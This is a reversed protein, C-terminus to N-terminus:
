TMRIPSEETPLVDMKLRNESWTNLLLKIEVTPISKLTLFTFRSLRFTFSCTLFLSVSYILLGSGNFRQGCVKGQRRLISRNWVMRYLIRLILEEVTNGANISTHCYPGM